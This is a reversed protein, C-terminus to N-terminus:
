SGSSWSSHRRGGRALEEDDQERRQELALVDSPCARASVAVRGEYAFKQLTTFRYWIPAIDATRRHLRHEGLKRHHRDWVPEPRPNRRHSLIMGFGQPETLHSTM